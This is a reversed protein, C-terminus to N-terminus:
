EFVCIYSGDLEVSFLISWVHLCCTILSNIWTPIVCFGEVWTCADNHVYNMGWDIGSIIIWNRLNLNGPVLECAISFSIVQGKKQHDHGTVALISKGYVSFFWSGSFTDKDIWHVLQEIHFM